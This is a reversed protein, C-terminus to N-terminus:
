GQVGISAFVMVFKSAARSWIAIERPKWMMKAEIPIASGSIIHM